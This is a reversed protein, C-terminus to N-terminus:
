FDFDAKTIFGMVGGRRLPWINEQDNGFVVALMETAVTLLADM